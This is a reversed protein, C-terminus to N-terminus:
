PQEGDPTQVGLADELDRLRNRAITLESQVITQPANIILLRELRTASRQFFYAIMKPDTPERDAM